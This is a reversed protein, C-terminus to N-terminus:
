NGREIFIGGLGAKEARHLLEIDRLEASRCRIFDVGALDVVARGFEKGFEDVQLLTVATDTYSEVFGTFNVNRNFMVLTQHSQAYALLDFLPTGEASPITRKKQGKLHALKLIKASYPRDESVSFITDGAVVAFGDEEGGPSLLNLLLDSEDLDLLYGLLFADRNLDDCYVAVIAEEDTLPELLRKIENNMKIVVMPFYCFLSLAYTASESQYAHSDSNSPRAQWVVSSSTWVDAQM